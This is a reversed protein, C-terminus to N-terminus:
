WKKSSLMALIQLNGASIIKVTNVRGSSVENKGRALTIKGFLLIAAMRGFQITESGAEIM